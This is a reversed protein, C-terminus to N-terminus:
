ADVHMWMECKEYQIWESKGGEWQRKCKNCEDQGENENGEEIDSGDEIDNGQNFM